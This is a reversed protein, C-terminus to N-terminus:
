VEKDSDHKVSDLEPTDLEGPDVTVPDFGLAVTLARHLYWPDVVAALARASHMSLIPVGMDVTRIGLRTATKPGITSGCPVDNNSVFAQSPVGASECAIRWQSAGVSDTAYRQNANVKLIPGKGLVPRVVPDHKEPYNPHVGHGVDCSFCLSQAFARRRDESSYGLKETIRHLVDELFPGDAGSRTGSGIEEHDFAAVISIPRGSAANGSATDDSSTANPSNADLPAGVSRSGSWVSGASGRILTELAAHTGLLNDLGPAALLERERGFQVPAQACMGYITYGAIDQASVPGAEARAGLEELLDEDQQTGLGWVPQLHRQKDLHLQENVSRDLHVALQPIRAFPGTRVLTQTGDRLVLKGAFELERDLLSNLLPGGYIEVGAQLYGLSGTTSHPKLMLGPSDTHTGVIMVPTGPTADGPIAVAIFAGDRKIFYRQGPVIDWAASEDLAIFGAAEVRNQAEAVAHYPSPSATIFSALDEAFQRAPAPVTLRETRTPSNM